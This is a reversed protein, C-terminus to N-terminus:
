RTPCFCEISAQGGRGGERGIEDSSRLVVLVGSQLDLERGQRHWAPGRVEKDLAAAAGDGEGGGAGEEGAAEDAWFGVKQQFLDQSKRKTPRWPVGM